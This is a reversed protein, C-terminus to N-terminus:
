PNIVVPMGVSVYKYLDEVDPIHMRMCGHSAATGISYDAYTGHIGVAPASTGIWRTGLPNGPGPPIPGLGKAWPSSPPMWTPDVQKNVVKFTGTPTPYAPQGVAVKYRKFVKGDRYLRLTRESLDVVIKGVMADRTKQDVVGTPKVSRRKQYAVLANRTRKTFTATVKGRLLGLGKLRENLAKADDGTAGVVMDHEGFENTSDVFLRMRKRAVNGAADKVWIEVVNKGQPLAGPDLQFSKGEISLGAAPTSSAVTTTAGDALPAAGVGAAGPISVTQRGNVTVGFTLLEPKDRGITGTVLPTDTATLTAGGKPSAVTITPAITDVIVEGDSATTNGAKDRATVRTATLGEPLRARLRFKGGPTATTSRSGGKWAVAVTSGPEATGEFVVARKTSIADNAPSKLAMEPAKTDVTFQWSREVTRAFVNDTRFRVHARHLGDKLGETPILLTGKAGRVAPTVDAGDVQVSLDSVRDINSLNVRLQPAASAVAGDPDPSVSAIAPKEMAQWAGFGVVGAVAAAGIGSTVWVNRRGRQAM